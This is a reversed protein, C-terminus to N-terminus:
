NDYLHPEDNLFKLSTQESAKLVDNWEVDVQKADQQYQYALPCVHCKSDHKVFKDHITGQSPGYGGNCCNNLCKPCRITAVECQQCWIWKFKWEIM